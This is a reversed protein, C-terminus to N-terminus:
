RMARPACSSRRSRKASTPTPSGSSQRNPLTDVYGEIEKPYVNYGGTIILDKDRGVITLYTPPAKVGATTGGFRGVDGTRFYGDATFDERTKEPM